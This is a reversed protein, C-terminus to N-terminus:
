TLILLCILDLAKQSAVSFILKVRTRHTLVEWAGAGFRFPETNSGLLFIRRTEKERFVTFTVVLVM